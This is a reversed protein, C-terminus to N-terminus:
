PVALKRGASDQGVDRDIQVSAGEILRMVPQIVPERPGYGM